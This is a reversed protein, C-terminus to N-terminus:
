RGLENRAKPRTSLLVPEGRGLRKLETIMVTLYLGSEGHDVCPGAPRRLQHGHRKDAVPAAASVLARLQTGRVHLSNGDPGNRRRCTSLRGKGAMRLLGNVTMMLYVAFGTAAIKLRM